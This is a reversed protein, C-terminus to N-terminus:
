VQVVMVLLLRTRGNAMLKAPPNPLVRLVIALLVHSNRLLAQLFPNVKKFRYIRFGGVLLSIENHSISSFIHHTAYLPVTFM